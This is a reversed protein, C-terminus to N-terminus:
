EDICGRAGAPIGSQSNAPWVHRIGPDPSNINSNIEMKM